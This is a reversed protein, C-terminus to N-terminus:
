TYRLLLEAVEKPRQWIAQHCTDLSLFEAQHLRAAMRRQLQPSILRDKELVVYTFDTNNGHEKSSIRDRLMRFPVPRFRNIYRTVEM